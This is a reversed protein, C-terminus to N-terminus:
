SSAAGPGIATSSAPPMPKKRQAGARGTLLYGLREELWVCDQNWKRPADRWRNVWRRSLLLLRRGAWRTSPPLTPIASPLPPKHRASSVRTTMTPSRPRSSIDEPRHLTAWGRTLPRTSTAAAAQALGTSSKAHGPQCRAAPTEGASPPLDCGRRVARSSGAARQDLGRALREVQCAARSRGRLRRRSVPGSRTAGRAGLSM